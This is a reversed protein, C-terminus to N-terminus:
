LSPARRAYLHSLRQQVALPISPEVIPEDTTADLDRVSADTEPYAPFGTVVSVEHLIVERLERSSRDDSWSDGGRPVTFGFSMSHVDGREMLTALDRGYSTDPLQGEVLLGREDESLLLTEARTSGLVLDTNHNVFMRVEKGSQLSRRFAGPKITEIFPLPESPSNFVAAYGVFNVRPDDDDDMERVEITGLTVTRFEVDRGGIRRAEHDLACYIPDTMPATREKKKSYRPHGRNLLDNDGVYDANEPEGNEALYLFANVRGMAWQGRTMGPRHSTSFAGAGRRYVARLAGTTVRTWDPRGEDRMRDNHEGTKNTLSKEVTDSLKIAGQTTAASGAPNEKSGVIQDSKPAPTSAPGDVRSAEYSSEDSMEDVIRESWARGPDGGWLAWAIRGASPYGDEGPRFGEADRDVAHRAFFSRMRKVTDIPLDKGNVLDRARAVGVLTGGRGFERRWDLGQQAEARMEATPTFTDTM